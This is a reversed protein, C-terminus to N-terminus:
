FWMRRLLGDRLVMQHYLAAGVHLVILAVLIRAGLGHPRRPAYQWFDPLPASAGGFLSDGAGSLVLMGIGSAGMGLMVVYLLVHVAHASRAQWRPMAVSVPKNDVRWWWVLRLLTLCVISLGCVAHLRLIVLKSQATETEASLNGSIMLALILLASLCHIGVAVSGYRHPTSLRAM